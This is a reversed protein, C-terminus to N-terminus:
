SLAPVRVTTQAIATPSITTKGLFDRTHDLAMLIMVVGGLLDISELRLGSLPIASIEAQTSDERTPGLIV